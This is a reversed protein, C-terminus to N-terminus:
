ARNKNGPLVGIANVRIIFSTSFIGAVNLQIVPFTVTITFLAIPHKLVLVYDLSSM